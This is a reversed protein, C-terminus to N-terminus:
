LGIPHYSPVVRFIRKVFLEPFPNGRWDYDGIGLCMGKASDYIKDRHLIVIHAGIIEGQEDPERVIERPHVAAQRRTAKNGTYFSITFLDDLELLEPLYYKIRRCDHSCFALKMGYKMLARSWSVPDQTNVDHVPMQFDRPIRDTLTALVNSVCSPGIQRRAKLTIDRYYHTAAPSHYWLQANPDSVFNPVNESLTNLYDNSPLQETTITTTTPPPPTSRAPLSDETNDTMLRSEISSSTDNLGRSSDVPVVRYIRKVFRQGFSKFGSRTSVDVVVDNCSDFIYKGHLIVIHSGVIWGRSNPESVIDSKSGCYYSITFLDDMSLLEPLYHKLRRCDTTCYALKMGYKTLANSWSVPDQTNVDVFPKQFDRPLIKKASHPYRPDNMRNALTALV